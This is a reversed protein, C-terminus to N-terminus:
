PRGIGQHCDAALTILCVATEATPGESRQQDHGHERMCPLLDFVCATDRLVRTRRMQRLYRRKQSRSCHYSCLLGRHTQSCPKLAKRHGVRTNAASQQQSSRACVTLGPALHPLDSPSCGVDLTNHLLEHRDQAKQDECSEEAPVGGM